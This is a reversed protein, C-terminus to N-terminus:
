KMRNELYAIEKLYYEDMVTPDNGKFHNHYPSMNIAFNSSNIACIKVAEKFRRENVGKGVSIAGTIRTFEVAIDRSNGDLWHNPAGWSYHVKPLTSLQKLQELLGSFCPTPSLFILLFLYFVKM